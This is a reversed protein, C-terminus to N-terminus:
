ISQVLCSGGAARLRSCLTEAAERTDAAISIRHWIAANGMTTRVVLPERGGLIAQYKKQLQAYRSLANSELRDGILQVAWAASPAPPASPAAPAPKAALKTTGVCPTDSAISVQWTRADPRKWETIAEAGNGTTFVVITNNTQGMDDLKKLVFGINDDLQKMGAENVGWDKGGQEGVMAYYKDSLVTTVHMRAPNYWVFVAQQNASPDNRDGNGHGLRQASGSVAM